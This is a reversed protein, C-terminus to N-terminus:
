FEDECYLDKTLEKKAGCHKCTYCTSFILLTSTWDHKRRTKVERHYDEDYWEPPGGHHNPNGGYDSAGNYIEWLKTLETLEEETLIMPDPSYPDFPDNM